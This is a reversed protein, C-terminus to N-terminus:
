DLPPRDEPGARLDRPCGVFGLEEIPVGAILQESLHRIKLESTSSLRKLLAFASPDDLGYREMLIGHAQGIRGRTELARQLNEILALAEQLTAPEATGGVTM